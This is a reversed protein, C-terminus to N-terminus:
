AWRQLLSCTVAYSCRVLTWCQAMKMRNPFRKLAVLVYFHHVYDFICPLFSYAMYITHFSQGIPLWVTSDCGSLSIIRNLTYILTHSKLTISIKEGSRLLLARTRAFFLSCLRVACCLVACLAYCYFTYLPSHITWSLFACITFQIRQFLNEANKFTSSLTVNSFTHSAAKKCDNHAKYM